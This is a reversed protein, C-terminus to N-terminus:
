TLYKILELRTNIEEPYTTSHHLDFYARECAAVNEPSPRRPDYPIDELIEDISCGYMYAVADLAALVRLTDKITVRATKAIVDGVRLHKPLVLPSENELIEVIDTTM